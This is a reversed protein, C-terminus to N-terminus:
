KRVRTPEYGSGLEREIDPSLIERGSCSTAIFAPANTGSLGVETRTTRDTLRAALAVYRQGKEFRPMEAGREWVYLDFPDPVSGKWVRSVEFTVRTGLDGARAVNLVRGSFVLEIGPQAMVHKATMVVCEARATVCTSLFALVFAFGTKALM